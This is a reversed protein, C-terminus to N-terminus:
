IEQPLGAGERLWETMKAELSKRGRFLHTKVAALSIGLAEAIEEYSLGEIYFLMLASRYKPDLERLFQELAETEEKLASSELSSRGGDPITAGYPELEGNMEREKKLKRWRNVGLNHAIRFLWAPFKAFDRCEGLHLYGQALTEAVLDECEERHNTFRYLYNYLRRQYRAIIEGYREREGALVAALIQPEDM